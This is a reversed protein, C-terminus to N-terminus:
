IIRRDTSETSDYLLDLNAEHKVML